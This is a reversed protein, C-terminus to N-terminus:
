HPKTVVRQTRMLRLRSSTNMSPAHLLAPHCLFVDGAAGTLEVVRAPIGDIDTDVDMYRSNREIKWTQKPVKLGRLWPHSACFGKNQDSHKDFSAGSRLLRDMLLPSNRVVTTGGGCPLVDDILLFVNLGLIQGPHRYPFDFHWISSPMLWTDVAVPLTVLAQGWNLAPERQAGGCVSDIADRVRPYDEPSGEGRKLGRLRPVGGLGRHLDVGTGWTSPEDRHIGQEAMLAWVRDCMEEVDLKPVAGKIGIYGVTNFVEIEEKTLM